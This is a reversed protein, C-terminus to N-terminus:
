NVPLTWSADWLRKDVTGAKAPLLHKETAFRSAVGASQQGYEGDVGIPWGRQAMRRQWQAVDARASGVDALSLVHGAFAPRATHLAARAVPRAAPRVASVVPRSPLASRSRSVTIQGLGLRRSCAPWPSWGRAAQLQRAAADQTAPSADSPRGGYGLSRWTGLDFQYAGYFGNGTAARYNGGSECGRLRAFDSATAASAASTLATGDAVAFAIALGGAALLPGTRSPKAHRPAPASTRHRLFM